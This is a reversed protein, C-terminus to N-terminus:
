LAFLYHILLVGDPGWFVKGASAKAIGSWLKKNQSEKLFDTRM